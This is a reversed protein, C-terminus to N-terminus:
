QSEGLGGAGRKEKEPQRRAMKRYIHASVQEELLTMQGEHSSDLQLDLGIRLPYSQSIKLM